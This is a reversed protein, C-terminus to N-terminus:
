VQNIDEMIQRLINEYDTMHKSVTADVSFSASLTNNELQIHGIYVEPQEANTNNEYISINVQVLELDSIRYEINYLTDGIILSANKTTIVNLIKMILIRQYKLSYPYEYYFTIVM